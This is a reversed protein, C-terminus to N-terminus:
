VQLMTEMCYRIHPGVASKELGLALGLEGYLADEALKLYREDLSSSKKGTQIRSQGRLWLTKIVRILQRCDCSKICERYLLERQKDTGGDVPELTPIEAILAEAESRTLVKRMVVRCNEVPAYIFSENKGYPCLIYYLKDKPIGDINITSIDTIDCVGSIGYIVRDGITFM